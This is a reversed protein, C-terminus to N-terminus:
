TRLSTIDLRQFFSETLFGSGYQPAFLDRNSSVDVKRSLALRSKISFGPDLVTVSPCNIRLM